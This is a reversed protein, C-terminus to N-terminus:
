PPYECHDLQDGQLRDQPEPFWFRRREQVFGRGAYPPRPHLLKPGLTSDRVQLMLRHGPVLEHLTLFM